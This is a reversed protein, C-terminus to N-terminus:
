PSPSTWSKTQLHPNILTPLNRTYRDDRTLVKQDAELKKRRPMAKPYTANLLEVHEKVPLVPQSWPLVVLHRPNYQQKRIAFALSFGLLSKPGAM